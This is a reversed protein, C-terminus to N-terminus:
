AGDDAEAQEKAGLPADPSQLYPLHCHPCVIETARQGYRISSVWLELNGEQNEQKNGNKHHVSEGPQLKRGLIKEMVVRHEGRWGDPTRIYVYGDRSIRRNEGKSAWEGWHDTCRTLRFEGFQNRSKKRPKRCGPIVCTKGKATLM